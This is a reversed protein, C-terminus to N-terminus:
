AIAKREPFVLPILVANLISAHNFFLGYLFQKMVTEDVKIDMQNLKSFDVVKAQALFQMALISSNPHIELGDSVIYIQNGLTSSRPPVPLRHHSEPVSKAFKSMACPGDPICSRLPKAMIHQWYEVFSSDVEAFVIKKDKPSVLLKMKFSSPPSYQPEYATGFNFGSSSPTQTGGCISSGSGLAIQQQTPFGLSHSGSFRFAM